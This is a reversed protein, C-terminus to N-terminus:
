PRLDPHSLVDLLEEDSLEMCACERRPKKTPPESEQLLLIERVSRDDLVYISQIVESDEDEDNEDDKNPLLTDRLQEM